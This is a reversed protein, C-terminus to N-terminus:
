FRLRSKISDTWNESVPLLTTPPHRTPHIIQLCSSSVCALRVHHPEAASQPRKRSAQSTGKNPGHQHEECVAVVVSQVAAKFSCSPFFLLSLVSCCIDVMGGLLAFFFAEFAESSAIGEKGAGGATWDVGGPSACVGSCLGRFCATPIVCACFCASISLRCSSLIICCRDM